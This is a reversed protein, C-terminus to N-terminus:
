RIVVVSSAQGAELGQFVHTRVNHQVAKGGTRRATRSAGCEPRGAECM